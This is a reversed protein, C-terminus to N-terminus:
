EKYKIFIPLMIVFLVGMLFDIGATTIEIWFFPIRAQWGRILSKNKYVLREIRQETLGILVHVGVLVETEKGLLDAMVRGDTGSESLASRKFIPLVLHDLSLLHQISQKWKLSGPVSM